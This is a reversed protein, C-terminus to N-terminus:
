CYFNFIHKCNELLSIKLLLIRGTLFIGNRNKLFAQSLKLENQFNSLIRVYSYNVFIEPNIRFTQSKIM